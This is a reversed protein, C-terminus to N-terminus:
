IVHASVNPEELDSDNATQEFREMLAHLEKEEDADVEGLTMKLNDDGEKFERLQIQQAIAASLRYDKDPKAGQMRALADQPLLLLSGTYVAFTLAPYHQKVTTFFECDLERLAELTGGTAVLDDARLHNIHLVGDRQLQAALEIPDIARVLTHKNADKSYDINPNTGSGSRRPTDEVRRHLQLYKLDPASSTLHSVFFDRFCDTDKLHSPVVDFTALTTPDAATSTTAQRFSQVLNDIATHVTQAQGSNIAMGDKVRTIIKHDAMTWRYLGPPFDVRGRYNEFVVPRKKSAATKRAKPPRRGSLTHTRPTYTHTNVKTYKVVGCM